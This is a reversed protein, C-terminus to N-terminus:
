QISKIFDVLLNNRGIDIETEHVTVKKFTKFGWNQKKSFRLELTFTNNWYKKSLISPYNMSIEVNYDEIKYKWYQGTKIKM